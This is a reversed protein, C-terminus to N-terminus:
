NENGKTKCADYIRIWNLMFKDKQHLVFVLIDTSGTITWCAFIIGFYVRPGGFYGTIDGLYYNLQSEFKIFCCIIFKIGFIWLFIHILPQKWTRLMSKRKLRGNTFKRKVFGWSHLYEKIDIPSINNRNININKTEVDISRSFSKLLTNDVM